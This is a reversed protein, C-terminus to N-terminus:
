IVVVKKAISNGVIVIFIGHPTRIAENDSSLAKNAILEGNISYVFIREGSANLIYIQEKGGTIVFNNNEQVPVPADNSVSGVQIKELKVDRLSIKSAAPAAGLDFSIRVNPDDPSRMTFSYSFLEEKDSFSLSQYNSYADWPSSNRGINSSATFAKTSSAKFSIRYQQGNEILIGPKILQIYWAESGSTTVDIELADNNISTASVAGSVSQFFWGSLGTNGFDSEFVVTSTVPTPSPLPNHLLADVLPQVFTKTGPNYIGFGASFEWYAWSYGQEEFFRAMFTTWRARSDIDATSYAGFEGIHVPINHKESFLKVERFEQRVVEREIETDLWKVGSVHQMNSWEAGQHTFDFPNYYHVTLILNEDDPLELVNLGNIGGWNHTCILICRDPNTKRIEKLADAAFENWLNADSLKEQPENLIEFVLSDPYDKFYEAIQQWQSLFRAKQEAPYLYLNEHHHMNVIIHLNNSIADDVVTKIRELFSATITYPAVTMTREPVEWRVPLRIHSFGLDAIIKIYSPDWSNGWATETPAEFTNGINVGRGLRENIEFAHSQAFLSLTFLMSLSVVIGKRLNEYQHTLFCSKCM